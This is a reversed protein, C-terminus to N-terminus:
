GGLGVFGPRSILREAMDLLGAFRAEIFRTIATHDRIVHSVYGRKSWPSITVLSIRPGMTTFPARRPSSYLLYM